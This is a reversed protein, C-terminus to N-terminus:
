VNFILLLVFTYTSYKIVLIHDYRPTDNDNSSTEEKNSDKAPKVSSYPDRLESFAFEGLYTWFFLQCISVLSIVAFFGEKKNQYIVVDRKSAAKNSKCRQFAMLYSKIGHKFSALRIM